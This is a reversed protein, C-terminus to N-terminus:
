CVFFKLPEMVTDMTSGCAHAECDVHVVEILVYLLLVCAFPVLDVSVMSRPQIFAHFMLYIHLKVNKVLSFARPSM